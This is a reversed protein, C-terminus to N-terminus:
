LGAEWVGTYDALEFVVPDKLKYRYIVRAGTSAVKELGAKKLYGLIPSEKSVVVYETNTANLSEEFDEIPVDKKNLVIVDLIRNPHKQKEAIFDDVEINNLKNIYEERTATSLIKGDYQRLEMDLEFDCAARPYEVESNLHILRSVEIVEEPMKYANTIRRYGDSYVFSGAAMIVLVSVVFVTVKRADTKSFEFILKVICVGICLVVPATWIFRYYEDNIDFFHDIVVPLLPNFVTLLLVFAPYVFVAKEKRDGKIFLFVLGALYLLLYFCSGSYLAICKFIYAFGEEAITISQM